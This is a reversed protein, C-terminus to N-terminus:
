IKRLFGDPCVTILLKEQFATDIKFNKNQELFEHIATKPNNGKGWPRNQYFDHPMDEVISDFVILYSGSSVMPSYAILEALVHEHTHNSDLMVLVKEVKGAERGISEVIDGSESPGEVIEIWPFLPHEELAVRNHKRVDIDVGIVRRTQISDGRAGGANMHDFLDLLALASASMVLSGGRAIGTEIILDPKVRWIIEQVAVMDQPFQIIPRGLWEFHYSYNFRTAAEMWSQTLRMLDEDAAMERAEALGKAIFVEHDNM